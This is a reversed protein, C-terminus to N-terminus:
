GLLQQDLVGVKSLKLGGDLIEDALVVMDLLLKRPLNIADLALKVLLDFLSFHFSNCLSGFNVLKLFM